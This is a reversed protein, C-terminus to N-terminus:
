HAPNKEACSGSTFPSKSERIVGAELLDWVAARFEELQGQPVKRHPERFPTEDTLRIEHEIESTCGLDHDDRAFVHSMRGLMDRTKMKQEETLSTDVM